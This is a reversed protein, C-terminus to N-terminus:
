ADAKRQLAREAQQQTKVIEKTKENKLVLATAVEQVQIHKKKTIEFNKQSDTIVLKLQEEEQVLKELQARYDFMSQPSCAQGQLGKFLEEQRNLRWQQFNLLNQKCLEVQQAATQVLEKSQFVAKQQKEMRRERIEQLQELSM